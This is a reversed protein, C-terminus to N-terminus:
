YRAELSLWLLRADAAWAEAAYDALELRVAYARGFRRGLSVDLEGGYDAAGREADFDHWVAKWDFAGLRGSLSVYTDILGDPPTVLFRDAWGNFAHLTALPTAFGYGDEGELTERGLLLELGAGRYGAELLRYGTDRVVSVDELASQGALEARFLLEHGANLPWGGAARLGGTQQARLPDDQNDLRYYYAVLTLPSIRWHLNLLDADMDTDARAPDPHHAGFIRNVRTVRGYFLELNDRLAVSLTGADFTQENQRFGVNGVFRQNDLLIRQRGLKLEANGAPRWALWAQNLETDQPDAIVPYGTRGNATSNYDDVGLDRVDEFELLGSFEDSWKATLGARLRLTLARASDTFGDQDVNEYRLRADLAPTVEAAAAGLVACGLAAALLARISM